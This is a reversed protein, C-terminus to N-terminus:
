ASFMFTAAAGLHGLVASKIQGDDGPKATGFYGVYNTLFFLSAKADSGAFGRSASSDSGLTARDEMTPLL